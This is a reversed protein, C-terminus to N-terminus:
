LLRPRIVTRPSNPLLQRMFLMLVGIVAQFILSHGRLEAPYLV